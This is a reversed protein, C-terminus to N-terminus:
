EEWFQIWDLAGGEDFLGPGEAEEPAFELMMNTLTETDVEPYTQAMTALTLPNGADDVGSQIRQIIDTRIKGPLDEASYITDVGPTGAVKPAATKAFKRIVNGNEDVITDGEKMVIPENAGSAIVNGQSDVWQEGPKLIETKEETSLSAKARAYGSVLDNTTVGAETAFQQLEEDSLDTIDFGQAILDGAFQNINEQKRASRGAINAIVADAGLQYAERREAMEDVVSQRVNGMINGIKAAREAQIGREIGVGYQTVKEKQASGFSSGLLGGRAAVSRQSGLRGTQALRAQNLQEDYIRNTADIEAQYLRLQNRTAQRRAADEDFPDSEAYQEFGGPTFTGQAAEETQIGALSDGVTTGFRIAQADIENQPDYTTPYQSPGYADELSQTFSGVEQTPTTNFGFQPTVPDGQITQSSIYNEDAPGGTANEINRLREADSYDQSYTRLTAM